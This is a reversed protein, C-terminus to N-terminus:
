KKGITWEYDIIAILYNYLEQLYNTKAQNLLLEADQLDSLKSLGKKFRSEVLQYNREAYQVTEYTTKLNTKTEEVKFKAVKIETKLALKLNDLNNNIIEREIKAQEVKSSVKFGSFIPISINIGLFASNPWYYKSFKFDNQETMIKYQGFLAVTPLHGAYEANILEDTTKGQLELISIEKRNQLAFNYSTEFDLESFSEPMKLQDAIQFDKDDPYNMLLKLYFTATKIGNEIKIINPYLNQMAVYATLTDVELAYGQRYLSKVDLFRQKARQYSQQILKKQEELILINYYAKKVDRKIELVKNEYIESSMQNIVKAARIGANIAGSFLPQSLEFTFSYSNDSGIEVPINTGPRGFFIGPMYFVNKKLSRMYMASASLNPYANGYAERVQEDTKFKNMRANKLEINNNITYSIISDLTMSKVQANVSNSLLLMFVVIALGKSINANNKPEHFKDKWEEVKIYVVPVLILTLFLSSVLGGIIATALGSKIESGASLSLAIPLMGFVMAATTMIIPRIRTKGADILADYANIGNKRMQNARDVLLIANKAVLGVLMIIGLISFINLTKMMLALGYLAGIIALPVSFIVVFPYLWSDYLAVMILYVFIIAVILANFLQSFSEAQNELDGEYTITIDSPLNAKEILTKIDNGIDGSTRGDAQSFITISSNRNKRELVSPGLSQEITAFQQLEILQGQNNVFKMFKLNDTNNRDAKDLVVRINFEQNGGSRYKAEDDGTYATRLTYSVLDTSLGLQAMKEKDLRIQYEPKGDQSSTRVDRTGPVTAILAKVKQATKYVKEYDSGNVVVVIPSGESMGFIGVPTVRPKAGPIQMIKEKIERAVENVSRKRENKGVLSVLLESKNNTVSSMFNDNAYGVNTFVRKVEPISLVLSEAQQTLQNNQDLTFREPYEIIVSLEGRDSPTVFEAGIFGLAPLLLSSILLVTSIIIVKAKHKLAWKLIRLYHNTLREFQHEFFNAIKWWFTDPHIETVKSLRSAFMPTLTFSVVLSSLTSVVVVLSFQRLINGILGSILSIPVFVVVDVLTISLASFGIENRGDLAATFKDKGMELHRHINELVVISDDVLIGIVLSLALLTMLNLTFGFAWMAVFTTAFSAPIAVLVIFSNRLSHLFILMVIAVLIIAILLDENVARAAELTFESGDSAIEFKLNYEKYQEELKKLENRILKSVEVANADTQKNILIGVSIKKNIRTITEIEKIGDEVEAVDSIKIMGASPFNMIPINRIEDISKFKSSVRVIYQGDKDKITGVPFDLNNSKIAQLVQLISLNYYNLRELNVNIKIEREEGGIIVFQAVGDLKTIAPKIKDKLLEYFETSPLTATAGMRIIPLENISFKMVTPTKIDKPLTAVIENVKRQVDQLAINADASQLFEIFVFSVGEASSCYVRKIKNVGSVADEIPKTVSTEVEKPSAGPYVTVVTVFPPTIDPILEYNLNNYGYIGLIGIIIYIVLILRPRKIALETVTM